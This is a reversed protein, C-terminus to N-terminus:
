ELLHLTGHRLRVRPGRPHSEPEENAVEERSGESSVMRQEGFAQFHELHPRKVRAAGWRSRVWPQTVWAPPPVVWSPDIRQDTLKCRVDLHPGPHIIGLGPRMGDITSAVRNRQGAHIDLDFHIFDILANVEILWKWLPSDAFITASVSWIQLPWRVIQEM